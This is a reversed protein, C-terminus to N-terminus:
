FLWEFHKVREVVFNNFISNIVFLVGLDNVSRSSPTHGNPSLFTSPGLYASSPRARVFPDEAYPYAYASVDTNTTLVSARLVDTSPSSALPTSPAPLTFTFNHVTSAPQLTTVIIEM